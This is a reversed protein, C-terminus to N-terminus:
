GSPGGPQVVDIPQDGPQPRRVHRQSHAVFQPQVHQDPSEPDVPQRRAAGVADCPPEAGDEAAVGIMLHRQEPDKAGDFGIMQGMATERGVHRRLGLLFACDGRLSLAVAPPDAGPDPCSNEQGDANRDPQHQCRRGRRRRRPRNGPWGPGCLGPCHRRHWHRGVLLASPPAILEAQDRYDHGQGEEHDPSPPSAEQHASQHRSVQRRHTNRQGRRRDPQEPRVAHACRGGVPAPMPPLLCRDEIRDAADLPRDAGAALGLDHIAATADKGLIDQEDIARPGAVVQRGDGIMQGSAELGLLDIDHAEIVAAVGAAQRRHARRAAATLPPLRQLLQLGLPQGVLEDNEGIRSRCEIARRPLWARPQPWQRFPRARDPHRRHRCRLLARRFAPQLVM